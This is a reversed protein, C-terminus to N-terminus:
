NNDTVSLVEGNVLTTTGSGEQFGKQEEGKCTAELKEKELESVVFNGKIGTAVNEILASTEGTCEEEVGVGIVLCNVVYGPNKGASSGFFLDLLTGSEMLYAITNWPLNVPWVESNNECTELGTCLLALGSLSAGTPEGTLNLVSTVTDTGNGKVTGDFFGGCEVKAVGLHGITLSEGTLTEFSEGEKIETSGRLWVVLLTTEASAAGATVAAFALVAMLALLVAQYRKM